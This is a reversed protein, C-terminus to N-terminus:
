HRFFLIVSFFLLLHQKEVYCYQEPESEMLTTPIFLGCLVLIVLAPVFFSAFSIKNDKTFLLNLIKNWLKAIFPISVFIIASLIVIFKYEIKM